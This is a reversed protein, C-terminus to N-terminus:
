RKDPMYRALRSPGYIAAYREGWFRIRQHDVQANWMPSGRWCDPKGVRDVRYCQPSGGLKNGCEARSGHITRESHMPDPRYGFSGTPRQEVSCYAGVLGAKLGAEFSMVHAGYIGMGPPFGVLEHMATEYQDAEWATLDGGASVLQEVDAAFENRRRQIVADRIAKDNAAELRKASGRASNVLIVDGNEDFDFPLTGAPHNQCREGEDIALGMVHSSSWATAAPAAGKKRSEKRLIAQKFVDRFVSRPWIECQGRTQALFYHYKRWVSQSLSKDLTVTVCGVTLDVLRGEEKENWWRLVTTQAEKGLSSALVSAEAASRVSLASFISTEGVPAAPVGVDPVRYLDKRPGVAKATADKALVSGDHQPAPFKGEGVKAPVQAVLAAFLRRVLSSDRQQEILLLNRQIEALSLELADIRKEMMQAASAREQTARHLKCEYAGIRHDLSEIAEVASSGPIWRTVWHQELTHTRQERYRRIGAEAERLEDGAKRVREDGAQRIQDIEDQIGDARAILRSKAIVLARDQEDVSRGARTGVWLAGLLCTLGVVLAVLKGKKM